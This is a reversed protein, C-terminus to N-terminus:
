TYSLAHRTILKPTKTDPSSAHPPTWATFKECCVAYQTLVGTRHKWVSQSQHLHCVSHPVSSLDSPLKGVSCPTALRNTASLDAVAALNEVLMKRSASTQVSHGDNTLRGVPGRHGTPGTRELARLNENPM